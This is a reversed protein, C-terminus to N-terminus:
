HSTFHMEFQLRPPHPARPRTIGPAARVDTVHCSPLSTQVRWRTPASPAARSFKRKSHPPSPTPPPREDSLLALQASIRSTCILNLLPRACPLFFCGRQGRLHFHAACCPSRCSRVPRPAKKARRGRHTGALLNVAPFNVRGAPYPIEQASVIPREQNRQVLLGFYSDCCLPRNSVAVRVSASQGRIKEALSPRVQMTRRCHALSMALRAIDAASVAFPFHRPHVLGLQERALFGRTFSAIRLRAHGSAQRAVRKESVKQCPSFRTAPRIAHM